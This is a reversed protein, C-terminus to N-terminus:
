SGNGLTGCDSRPLGGMCAVATHLDSSTSMPALESGGHALFGDEVNVDRMGRYLEVNKNADPGM